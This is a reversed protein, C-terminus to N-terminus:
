LGGPGDSTIELESGSEDAISVGQWFNVRVGKHTMTGTKVAVTIPQDTDNTIRASTSGAAIPDEIAGGSVAELYTDTEIVRGAANYQEITIVGTEARAPALFVAQPLLAATLAFAGAAAARRRAALV